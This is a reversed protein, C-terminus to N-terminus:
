SRNGHVRHAHGEAARVKAQTTKSVVSSVEGVDKLVGIVDPVRSPTRAMPVACGPRHADSGGSAVAVVAPPWWVRVSSM